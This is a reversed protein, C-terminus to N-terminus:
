KTKTFFIQRDEKKVEIKDGSSFRGKILDVSLPNVILQQMVRKLPRAGYEPSFGKEALFDRVLATLEIKINKDELRKKIARMQIDVIKKIS